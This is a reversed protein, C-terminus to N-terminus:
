HFLWTGYTTAVLIDEILDASGGIVLKSESNTLETIISKSFVLPARPTKMNHSM